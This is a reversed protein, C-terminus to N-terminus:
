CVAYRALAPTCEYDRFTSTPNGGTWDVRNENDPSFSFAFPNMHSPPRAALRCHVSGSM